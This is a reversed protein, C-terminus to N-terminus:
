MTWQEKCHSMVRQIAPNFKNCSKRAFDRENEECMVWGVKCHNSFKSFVFILSIRRMFGFKANKSSNPCCCSGCEFSSYRVCQCELSERRQSFPIGFPDRDKWHSGTRESAMDMDLHTNIRGNWPEWTDKSFGTESYCTWIVAANPYIFPFKLWSSLFYIYSEPSHPLLLLDPLLCSSVTLTGQVRHPSRLCVCDEEPTQQTQGLTPTRM